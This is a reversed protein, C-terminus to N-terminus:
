AMRRTPANLEERKLLVAAEAEEKTPYTGCYVRKGNHRLSGYWNGCQNISVCNFGSTNRIKLKSSGLQNNVANTVLQLNDLTDNGPIGDIHDVTIGAPIVGYAEEWVVRHRYVCRGNDWGVCYGDPRRTFHM